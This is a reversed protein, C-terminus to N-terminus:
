SYCEVHCQPHTYKLLISIVYIRLLIGMTGRIPLYNVLKEPILVVSFYV